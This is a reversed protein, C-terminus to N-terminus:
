NTLLAKVDKWTLKKFIDKSDDVLANFLKQKREQLAVIKEEITGKARLRFVHVSKTQGIRHTRDIAQREVQPNWWPDFIIVADASTLNLGVGGTKTSILFVPINPDSNFSDIVEKRNKTQGSLYTHRIKQKGLALAIIDLM